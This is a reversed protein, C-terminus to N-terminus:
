RRNQSESRGSDCRGIGNDIARDIEQVNNEGVNLHKEVLNHRAETLNQARDSLQDEIRDASEDRCEISSKFKEAILDNEEEGGRELRDHGDDVQRDPRNQLQHRVQDTRKIEIGARRLAPLCISAGCFSSVQPAVSRTLISLSAM